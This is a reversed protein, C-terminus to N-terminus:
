WDERVARTVADNTARRGSVMATAGAIIVLVAALIALPGWPIHMDMSWHFSQRNIVHILVLSIL